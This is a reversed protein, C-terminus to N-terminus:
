SKTRGDGKEDLIDDEDGHDDIVDTNGNTAMTNGNTNSPNNSENMGNDIDSIGSEDVENDNPTSFTVGAAGKACNQCRPFTTPLLRYRLALCPVRSLNFCHM